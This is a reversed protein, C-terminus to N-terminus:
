PQGGRCHTRILTPSGFGLRVPFAVKKQAISALDDGVINDEVKMNLNYIYTDPDCM